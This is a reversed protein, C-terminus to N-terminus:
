YRITPLALVLAMAEDQKEKKGTTCEWGGHMRLRRGVGRQRETMRM